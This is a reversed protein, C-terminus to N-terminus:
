ADRGHGHPMPIVPPCACPASTRPPSPYASPVQAPAPGGAAPGLARAALGRANSAGARLITRLGGAERRGRPRGRRPPGVLELPRAIIAIGSPRFRCRRHSARSVHTFSRDVGRMCAHMCAHICERAFLHVFSCIFSRVSSRFFSCICSLVFLLHVFCIRWAPLLLSSPGTCTLPLPCRGQGRARM